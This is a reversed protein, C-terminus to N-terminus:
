SHTELAVCRQHGALDRWTRFGGVASAGAARTLMEGVTAAQGAGVEVVVWGDALVRGLGAAIERYIDLGDGGGDLAGLPDFARVEPELSAIEATAIYPPNSVMLDFREDIGELSRCSRWRAREAVGHQAANGAAVVLAEASVDTGLGSAQPLEALLTVLIAGSGTGIDLIRIARERWGREAVLELAAGVLTETEPRPDLTASTIAFDRGYFGRRGLIRSVPERALRRALAAEVTAVQAATLMLGPERIDAWRESGTVGEVILRADTSPTAIGAARLRAAAERIAGALTTAAIRPECAEAM